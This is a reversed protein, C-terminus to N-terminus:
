TRKKILQLGNLNSFNGEFCDEIQDLTMMLAESVVKGLVHGEDEFFNIAYDSGACETFYKIHNMPFLDDYEGVTFITPTELKKIQNELSLNKLNMLVQEKECNFMKALKKIRMSSQEALTEDVRFLFGGEFGAVVALSKIKIGARFAYTASTGIGFVGIKGISFDHRSDDELWNITEKLFDDINKESLRSGDVFSFGHGPPDLALTAFNRFDTHSGTLSPFYEKTMDMGPLTILVNLKERSLNSPIRLLGYCKSDDLEICVRTATFGKYNELYASGKDFESNIREWIVDAAEKGQAHTWSRILAHVLRQRLMFTTHSRNGKEAEELMAQLHESLKAWTAPIAKVNFANREVYKVDAHNFDFELLTDIVDPLLFNTGLNRYAADVLWNDLKLVGKAQSDQNV